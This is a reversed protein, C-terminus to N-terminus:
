IVKNLDIQAFKDGNIRTRLVIIFGAIDSDEIEKITMLKEVIVWVDYKSLYNISDIASYVESGIENLLKISSHHEQNRRINAIILSLRDILNYLVAIGNLPSIPKNPYMNLNGKAM